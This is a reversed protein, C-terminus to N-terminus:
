NGTSGIAYEVDCNFLLSLLTGGEKLTNKVPFTSFITEAEWKERLEM